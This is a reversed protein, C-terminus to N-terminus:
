KEAEKKDEYYKKFEMYTFSPVKIETPGAGGQITVTKTPLKEIIEQYFALLETKDLSNIKNLYKDFDVHDKIKNEIQTVRQVVDKKIQTVNELKSKLKNIIDGHYTIQREVGREVELHIKEAQLKLQSLSEELYDLNKDDSLFSDIVSRLFESVDIERAKAAQEIKREQEESIRFTKHKTTM